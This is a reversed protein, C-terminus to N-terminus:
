GRATLAQDVSTRIDAAVADLDQGGDVFAKLPSNDVTVNRFYMTALDVFNFANPKEGASLHVNDFM